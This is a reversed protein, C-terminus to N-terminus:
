RGDGLSSACGEVIVGCVLQRVAENVVAVVIKDCIKEGTGAGVFAVAGVTADDDVPRHGLAVVV